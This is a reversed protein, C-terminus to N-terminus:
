ALAAAESWFAFKSWKSDQLNNNYVCEGGGAMQQTRRCITETCFVFHDGRRPTICSNCRPGVWPRLRTGTAVSQKAIHSIYAYLQAFVVLGALLDKRNRNSGLSRLSRVCSLRTCRAGYLGRWVGCIRLHATDRSFVEQRPQAPSPQATTCIICNELDLGLVPSCPAPLQSPM